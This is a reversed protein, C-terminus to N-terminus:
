VAVLAEKRRSARNLHLDPVGLDRVWGM